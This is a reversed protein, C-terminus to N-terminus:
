EDDVLFLVSTASAGLLANGTPNSLRLNVTENGEASGDDLLAITFSKSMENAGFSLTGSAATYDFGSSASGDSTAYDVEVGSATGGSRTVLITVSSDLESVSQTAVKFQVTGAADNDTLTLTSVSQAGLTAGGQPNSLGLDITENAEDLTDNVISVPFTRSTVGAGFSL